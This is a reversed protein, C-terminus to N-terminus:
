TTMRVKITGDKLHTTTLRTGKARAAQQLKLFAYQQSVKGLWAENLGMRRDYESIIAKYTGNQTRTFGLDNAGSHIYKRPVIIHAVEPRLDGQYGRLQRGAPAQEIQDATLKTGEPLDVEQLAQVLLELDRFPCTTEFYQSM